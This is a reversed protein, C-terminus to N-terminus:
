LVDQRMEFLFEPMYVHALLWFCTLCVNKEKGERIHSQVAQEQVPWDENKEM